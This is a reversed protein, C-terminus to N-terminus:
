HHKKHRSTKKQKQYCKRQENNSTRQEGNPQDTSENTEPNVTGDTGNTGNTGPNRLENNSTPQEHNKTLIPKGPRINAAAHFPQPTPGNTRKNTLENTQQITSRNIPQLTSNRHENNSTPQEINPQPTTAALNKKMAEMYRDLAETVAKEPLVEDTQELSDDSGTNSDDSAAGLLKSFIGDFNFEPGSDAVKLSVAKITINALSLLAKITSTMQRLFRLRKPIDPDNINKKNNEMLQCCEEMLEVSQRAFTLQCQLKREDLAKAEDEIQKNQDRKYDEYDDKRKQWQWQQAIENVTQKSM